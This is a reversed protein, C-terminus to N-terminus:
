FSKERCDRVYIEVIIGNEHQFVLNLLRAFGKRM